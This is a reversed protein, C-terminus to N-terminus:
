KSLVVMAVTGQPPGTDSKLAQVGQRVYSLKALAESLDDVMGRIPESLHGESLTTEASDSDSCLIRVYRDM